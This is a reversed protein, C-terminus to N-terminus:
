QDKLRKRIIDEEATFYLSDHGTWAPCNRFIVVPVGNNSEGMIFNAFGAIEDVVAEETIKLIHGFLDSDGRFDRIAEM